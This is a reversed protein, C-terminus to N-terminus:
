ISNFGQTKSYNARQKIDIEKDVIDASFLYFHRFDPAYLKLISVKISSGSRLNLWASSESTSDISNELHLIEHKDFSLIKLKDWIVGSHFFKDIPNLLETWGSSMRYIAFNHDLIGAIKNSNNNESSVVGQCFDSFDFELNELCCLRKNSKKLEINYHNIKFMRVSKDSLKISCVSSTSSSPELTLFITNINKGNLDGTALFKTCESNAFDINGNPSIVFVPYPLKFLSKSALTMRETRENANRVLMESFIQKEEEDIFEILYLIFFIFLSKLILWINLLNQAIPYPMKDISEFSIILFLMILWFCFSIISLILLHSLITKGYSLKSLSKLSEFIITVLLVLLSLCIVIHRFSNSENLSFVSLSSSLIATATLSLLAHKKLINSYRTAIIGGLLLLFLFDGAFFIDVYIIDLAKDYIQDSLFSFLFFLSPNILAILVLGVLYLKIFSVTSGLVRFMTLSITLSALIVFYSFYTEYIFM